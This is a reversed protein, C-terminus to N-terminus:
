SGCRLEESLRRALAELDGTECEWVVVVKWGKKRLETQNANDREVTRQFKPLWYAKRVSPTTARKCGPHRHWFCGHVFIVTRYKPLVIDPCGPIEQCHLRFRYGLSHLLSRVIREPTTDRSRVHRMIESREDRSFPDKRTLERDSTKSQPGNRM